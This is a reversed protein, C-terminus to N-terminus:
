IVGTQHLTRRLANRAGVVAVYPRGAQAAQQTAAHALAKVALYYGPDVIAVFAPDTGVLGALSSQRAFPRAAPVLPACLTRCATMSRVFGRPVDCVVPPTLPACDDALDDFADSMLEPEVCLDHV